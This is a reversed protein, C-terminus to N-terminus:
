AEAGLQKVMELLEAVADQRDELQEVLQSTIGPPVPSDGAVWRRVTRDNVVFVRALESQWRPGYLAEGVRALLAPTLRPTAATATVTPM